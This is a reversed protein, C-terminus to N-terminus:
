PQGCCKKYKRGSGCPCPENRGVKPGRNVPTPAPPPDPLAELKHRIEDLMAELGSLKDPDFEAAEIELKKEAEPFHEKLEEQKDILGQLSEKHKKFDNGRLQYSKEFLQKEAKFQEASIGSPKEWHHVFNYEWLDAISYVIFVAKERNALHKFSQYDDQSILGASLLFDYVYPSGWLFAAVEASTDQFISASKRDLFKELAAEELRFYPDSRQSILSNEDWLDLMLDWLHGSLAFSFGRDALYKFFYGQLVFMFDEHMREKELEGANPQEASLGKELAPFLSDEYYLEYPAMKEQLKDWHFRGQSRYQLYIEELELHFATIAFGTEAGELVEQSNSIKNVMELSSLERVYNIQQYFLLKKYVPKLLDIKRDPEQMYAQVPEALKVTQQHYCYYNIFFDDLYEQFEQYIEPHKEKLLQLFRILKDFEKALEYQGSVDLIVDGYDYENLFDEPLKEQSFFDMVADYSDLAGKSTLINWFEESTM